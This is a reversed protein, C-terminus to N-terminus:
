SQHITFKTALIDISMKVSMKSESTFMVNAKMMIMEMKLVTKTVLEVYIM